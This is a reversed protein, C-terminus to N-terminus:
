KQWGSKQNKFSKDSNKRQKLHNENEISYNLTKGRKIERGPIYDFDITADLNDEKKKVFTQWDTGENLVIKSNEYHKVNVKYIDLKETEVLVQVVAKLNQLTKMVSLINFEKQFKHRGQVYAIQSDSM